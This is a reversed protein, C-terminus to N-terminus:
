NGKEMVCIITSKLDDSSRAFFFRTGDPNIHPTEIRFKGAFPATKPESWKGSVFRSFKIIEMDGSDTVFYFENGDPMFTIHTAFIEENNVLIKFLRPKSDPNKFSYPHNVEQPYVRTGSILFLVVPFLLRKKMM